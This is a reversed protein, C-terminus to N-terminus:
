KGQAALWESEKVERLWTPVEPMPDRGPTKPEHGGPIKVLLKGDVIGAVTSFMSRGNIVMRSLKLASVIFDSTQFRLSPNSIKEALAKGAKSSKRPSYGYGDEVREEGKLHPVKQKEKFFLGTCQGNWRSILVNDAGYENRLAERAAHAAESRAHVDAILSQAEPGEGIFFCMSVSM